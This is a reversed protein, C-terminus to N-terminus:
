RFGSKWKRQQPYRWAQGGWVWYMEHCRFPRGGVIARTRRVPFWHWPETTSAYRMKASAKVASPHMADLSGVLSHFLKRAVLAPRCETPIASDKSMTTARRQLGIACDFATDIEGHRWHKVALVRLLYSIRDKKDLYAFAKPHWVNDPTENNYCLIEDAMELQKSLSEEKAPIPKTGFCGVAADVCPLWKLGRTQCARNWPQKFVHKQTSIREFQKDAEAYLEEKLEELSINVDQYLLDAKHFLQSYPVSKRITAAMYSNTDGMCAEILPILHNPDVPTDVDKYKFVGEELKLLALRTSALLKFQPKAVALQARLVAEKLNGQKAFSQSQALLGRLTKGTKTHVFSYSIDKLFAALIQPELAEGGLEKCLKGGYYFQITPIAKIHRKVIAESGREFNLRLHRFGLSLSHEELAQKIPSCNQLRSGYVELVIPNGETRLIRELNDDTVEETTGKFMPPITPIMTIPSNSEIAAPAVQVFQRVQILSGCGKRLGVKHLASIM